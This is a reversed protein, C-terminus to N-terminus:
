QPAYEPLNTSFLTLDDSAPWPIMKEFSFGMKQLLQISKSNKNNTIALVKFLKLENRAFNLMETATELAFGKGTFEPLFAFGLDIDNFTERKLFGCLGMKEGTEKEQVLCLGFGNDRYSKMPRNHIYNIADDLTRIGRDGIFQLWGPSNMLCFIFPADETQLASIICRKTELQLM